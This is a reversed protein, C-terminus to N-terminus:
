PISTIVVQFSATITTNANISGINISAPTVGPQTVSNVIVSNPVFATGNAISDSLLVNNAAVNGDNTLAFTYTLVDGVEAFTKDVSKNAHLNALRITSTVSNSNATKSTPPLSPNVTYLYSAFANNIIPNQTTINIVTVQFSLTFTAGGPITGIPVFVLSDVNQLVGNLTVSGPTLITGNPLSDTLQVNTAATNGSNTILITYSITEGITAFQKNTSKTLTVNANNIQTSVLNSSINKTVPSQSPNVTYQYSASSGNFVVNSAPITNVVVQFSVNKTTGTPISGINVGNAPNAGVQTTGDITVSNVVFTTGTPIVDTFIVNNANTNGTGTFSVTYTLIDGIDAFNKDVAKTMTVTANNVQTSVINTTDTGSVAPQNPVPIYQYTTTGSNLIPNTQPISPVFVQFSVTTTSNAAISGISIGTAPNAGAQTVGNVTVSGPIFTTGSPIPDTYIVNTA